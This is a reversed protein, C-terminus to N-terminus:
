YMVYSVAVALSRLRILVSTVYRAAFMKYNALNIQPKSLDYIILVRANLIFILM